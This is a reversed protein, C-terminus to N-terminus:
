RDLPGIPEPHHPSRYAQLLTLHGARSLEAGLAYAQLQQDIRGHLRAEVRMQPEVRADQRGLHLMQQEGHEIVAGPEPVLSPEVDMRHLGQDSCGCGNGGLAGGTSWHM